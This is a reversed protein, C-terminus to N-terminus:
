KYELILFINGIAEYHVPRIFQHIYQKLKSFNDGQSGLTSHANTPAGARAALARKSQKLSSMLLKPKSGNNKRKGTRRNYGGGGGSGGGGGFSNTTGIDLRFYICALHGHFYKIATTPTFM